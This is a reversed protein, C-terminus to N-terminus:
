QPKVSKAALKVVETRKEIEADLAAVAETNRGIMNADRSYWLPMSDTKQGLLDAIQRPTYGLERLITAVMHRLGKLTLDRALNGDEVQKARYRHWVSSFGSYTWPLGHTSALVTIADHSPAAALADNLRKGIKIGTAEDTKARHLWIAGDKIASRRLNLADSPDMGFNSILAIVVAIHPPATNLVHDLEHVQWPRNARPQDKPRPHPIVGTAHNASILGQPVAFRFVESM